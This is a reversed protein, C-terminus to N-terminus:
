MIYKGDKHRLGKVDPVAGWFAQVPLPKRAEVFKSEPKPIQAKGPDLHHKLLQSFCYFYSSLVNPFGNGLRVQISVTEFWLWPFYFHNSYHPVSCETVTFERILEVTMNQENRLDLPNNYNRGAEAWQYLQSIATFLFSNWISSGKLSIKGGPSTYKGGTSWGHKSNPYENKSAEDDERWLTEKEGSHDDTLSFDTPHNLQATYKRALHLYLAAWAGPAPAPQLANQSQALSTIGARPPFFACHSLIYSETGESPQNM